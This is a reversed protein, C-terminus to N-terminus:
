DTRGHKLRQLCGCQGPYAQVVAEGAVRQWTSCYLFFGCDQRGNREVPLGSIAEERARLGALYQGQIIM